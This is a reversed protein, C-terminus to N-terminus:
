SAQTMLVINSDGQCWEQLVHDYTLVFEPCRFLGDRVRSRHGDWMWGLTSWTGLGVVSAELGSRGLPKYRM